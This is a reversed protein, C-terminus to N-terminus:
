CKFSEKTDRPFITQKLAKTILRGEYTICLEVGLTFMIKQLLKIFTHICVYFYKLFEIHDTELLNIEDDYM